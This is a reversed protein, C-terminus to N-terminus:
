DQGTLNGELGALVSISIVKPSRLLLSPSIVQMIIICHGNFTLGSMILMNHDVSYHM